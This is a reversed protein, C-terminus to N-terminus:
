NAARFLSTSNCEPCGTTREPGTGPARRRLRARLAPRSMTQYWQEYPVRVSLFSVGLSLLALVGFALRALVDWGSKHRAAVLVEVAAIAVLAVVPDLFRPGWAVGGDWSDWKAFFLIRPVILLLFLVAIPRDRRVFIVIGVLGMLAIPNFM